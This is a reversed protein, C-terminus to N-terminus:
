DPFWTQIPAFEEGMRRLWTQVASAAFPGVKGAAEHYHWGHANITQSLELTLSPMWLQVAGRSVADKFEPQQFVPGFTEQKGDKENCVIATARPFFGAKDLRSLDSLDHPDNGVVHIAVPEVGGERLADCLNPMTEVLMKLAINGGGLDVIANHQNEVAYQLLDRLWDRTEATDETPPEVVGEVFSRLSRNSPDAAAIIAGVDRKELTEALYRAFVTKGVKGRGILFVAKRKGTLDIAKPMEAQPQLASVQPLPLSVTPLPAKSFPRFPIVSSQAPLPVSKPPMDNM